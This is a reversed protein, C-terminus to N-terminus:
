EAEVCLVRQEDRSQEFAPRVDGLAGDDNVHRYPLSVDHQERVVRDVAALGDAAIREDEVRNQVEVVEVRSALQIRFSAPGRATFQNTGENTGRKFRFRTM